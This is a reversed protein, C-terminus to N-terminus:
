RAPDAYNLKDPKAPTLPMLLLGSNEIENQDAIIHGYMYFLGPVNGALGSAPLLNKYQRYRSRPLV